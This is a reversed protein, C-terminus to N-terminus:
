CDFYWNLQVEDKVTAEGRYAFRRIDGLRAGQAAYFRCTDVNVNQTEIKMQTCHRERSWAVAHRFLGRGVGQRRQAPLVRIDWLLSLDDRGDLMDVGATQWALVVGGLVQGAEVALFIGWKGLDFRAPWGSPPDLVDYDKAYAAVRREHFLMGGLGDQVLEVVLLARVEFSIPIRAYDDLRSAPIELIDM